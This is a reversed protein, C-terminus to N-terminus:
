PAKAKKGRFRVAVVVVVVVVVAIVAGVAILLTADFPVPSNDQNTLATGVVIPTGSLDMTSISGCITNPSM